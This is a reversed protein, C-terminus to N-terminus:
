LARGASKAPLSHGYRTHEQGDPCCCSLAHHIVTPVRCGARGRCGRGLGERDRLRPKRTRFISLLLGQRSLHTSDLNFSMFHDAQTKTWPLTEACTNVNVAIDTDDSFLGPHGWCLTNRHSWGWGALAVGQSVSGKKVRSSRTTLIPPPPLSNVAQDQLGRERHGRDPEMQWKQWCGEVLPDCLQYLLYRKSFYCVLLTM